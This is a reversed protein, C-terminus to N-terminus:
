LAILLYEDGGIVSKQMKVTLVNYIAFLMEVLQSINQYGPVKVLKSYFSLKLVTFKRVQDLVSWGDRRSVQVYKKKM